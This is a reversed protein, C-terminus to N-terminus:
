FSVQMEANFTRGPMPFNAQTVYTTNNLINKFDVLVKVNKSIKHVATCNLLYYSKLVNGHLDTRLDVYQGDVTLKTDFPFKINIGGDVTGQPRYDLQKNDQDVARLYTYRAYVALFDAPIFDVRAEIGSLEAKNINVPTQTTSVGDTIYQQDILHLVESKFFTVGESIKDDKKDVGVEYSTSDEPKLAPNGKYYTEGYGYNGFDQAPWYLEDMTPASFSKDFSARIAVNDPFKYKVSINESTMNEYTSNFDARFGGNILLKDDLLKASINTISAQNSNSTNGIVDSSDLQRYTTEYGTMGSIYSSEDYMLYLSGSYEKKKQNSDEFYSTDIFRLQASRMYGTAQGKLPGVNFKEDAGLHFNEDYEKAYPSPGYGSFPVGMDRKFYYGFLTSDLFDGTFSLKANLTHKLYASNDTYGDSKEEVASASYKVGYVKYDSSLTYKQFNYSGYSASAAVPKEEKSGTIINIAGASADAGYVSSLGGKVVEIRDFDSLDVQNLDVGGVAIDNLPVGDQMILTHNSNQGRVLVSSVGQYGGSRLVTLGPISDLVDQLRQEGSDAIDAAKVVEIGRPVLAIDEPVRRATVVVEVAAAAATIVQQATTAPTAAVKNKWDYVGAANGKSSIGVPAQSGSQMISGGQSQAGVQAGASNYDSTFALVLGAILALLVTFINRKKM